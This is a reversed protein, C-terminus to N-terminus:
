KVENTLVKRVWKIFIHPKYRFTALAEAPVQNWFKIARNVFFYKGIHTRQKRVRIKRDYDDRSLYCPGQLRDVAAKRAGEGTYAKFLACLRTIKRRQALTELVSDKTHNTFKAARKKVQDLANIQGERYSDWCVAGYELIPRV